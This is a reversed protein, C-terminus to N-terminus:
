SRGVENNQRIVLKSEAITSNTSHPHLFLSATSMPTVSNVRVLWAESLTTRCSPAQIPLAAGESQHDCGCGCGKIIVAVVVAQLHHRLETWCLTAQEEFKDRAAATRWKPSELVQLSLKKKKPPFIVHFPEPRTAEM